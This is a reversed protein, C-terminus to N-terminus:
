HGIQKVAMDLAATPDFVGDSTSLISKLESMDAPGNDEGGGDGPNTPADHHVGPSSNAGGGMQQNLQALNALSAHPAVSLSRGIGM